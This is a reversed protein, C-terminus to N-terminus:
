ELSEFALLRSGNPAEASLFRDLTRPAKTARGEYPKTNEAYTARIPRPDLTSKPFPM